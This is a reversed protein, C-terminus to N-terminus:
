LGFLDEIGLSEGGIATRGYTEEGGTRVDIQKRLFFDIEGLFVIQGRVEKDM